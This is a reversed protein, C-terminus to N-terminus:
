FKFLINDLRQVLGTAMLLVTTETTQEDCATTHWGNAILKDRVSAAVKVGWSHPRSKTSGDICEYFASRPGCYSPPMHRRQLCAGRPCFLEEEYGPPLVGLSDPPLLLLLICLYPPMMM